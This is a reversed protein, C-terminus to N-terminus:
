LRVIDQIKIDLIDWDDIVSHKGEMYVQDAIFNLLQKNIREGSDGRLFYFRPPGDAREVRLVPPIGGSVCRIACARHTKGNGPKMVGFYCKPDVIEGRLNITDILKPAQSPVWNQSASILSNEHATLEMLVKGEGYILTGKLVVERGDILDGLENEMAEITGLAGAKGSGVLIVSRSLAGHENIVLRPVPSKYLVGKIETLEGFEFYGPNFPKQFFGNAVGAGLLVVSIIGIGLVVTKAYKRPANPLYGIYFEDKNKIENNM